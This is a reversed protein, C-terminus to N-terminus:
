KLFIGQSGLPHHNLNGLLGVRLSPDRNGNERVSNDPSLVGAYKMGSRTVEEMRVAERKFRM